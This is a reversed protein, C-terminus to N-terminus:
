VTLVLLDGSLEAYITGLEFRVSGFYDQNEGWDAESAEKCRM